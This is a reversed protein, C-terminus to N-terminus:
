LPYGSTLAASAVQQAFGVVEEVVREREEDLPLVHHSRRFYVLRNTTSSVRRIITAASELPATPDQEGQLVVIPQMVRPLLDVAQRRVKDMELGAAVAYVGGSFDHTLHIVTDELAWTGRPPRAGAM